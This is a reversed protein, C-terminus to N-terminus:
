QVIVEAGGPAADVIEHDMRDSTVNEEAIITLWELKGGGGYRVMLEREM